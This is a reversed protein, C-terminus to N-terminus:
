GGGTSRAWVLAAFMVLLYVVSVRLLRRATRDDTKRRFQAAVALYGVGAATAAVAYASGFGSYLAPALSVPLLASAGWLAVRSAKRGTPDIVTPLQLGAQRFQDRYLWAIAMAHPFQWFFVVGFLVLGATSDPVGAAATGLLVPMAGAVAGVPTQWASRPKLPTYVLVYTIWSAVALLLLWGDRLAALYLMGAASTALGFATVQGTTLKGSPLPRPATRAMRSDTWRELRQNLAIAGVIVLATGALAHAIRGQSAAGGSVLAAVLMALLVMAVIRPRTLQVYDVFRLPM